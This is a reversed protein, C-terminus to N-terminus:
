QPAAPTSVAGTSAGQGGYGGQTMNTDIVLPQEPQMSEIAQLAQPADEAEGCVVLDKQQDILTTLWERVLPHDDVLFVRRKGDTELIRATM